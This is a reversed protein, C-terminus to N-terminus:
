HAGESRSITVHKLLCIQPCIKLSSDKYKCISQQEGVVCFPKIDKRM